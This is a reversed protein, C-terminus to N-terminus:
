RLAEKLYERLQNWRDEEGEWEDMLQLVMTLIVRMAVTIREKKERKQREVAQRHTRCYEDDHLSKRSFCRREHDPIRHSGGGYHTRSSMYNCRVHDPMTLGPWPYFRCKFNHGDGYGCESCVEVPVNVLTPGVRLLDSL